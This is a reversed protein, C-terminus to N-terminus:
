YRVGRTETTSTTSIPNRMTTQETTTSTSHVSPETKREVTTCASLSVLAAVALLSLITTKM